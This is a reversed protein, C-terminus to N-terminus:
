FYGYTRELKKSFSSGQADITVRFREVCWDMSFNANATARRVELEMLDLTRLNRTTYDMGLLMGVLYQCYSMGENSFHSYREVNLVAQISMGFNTKRFPIRGGEMICNVDSLTELYAAACVISEAIPDIFEPAYSCIELGESIELAEEMLAGSSLAFNLNDAARCNYIRRIIGKLNEYDSSAGEVIYELENRFIHEKKPSSFCGMKDLLYTLFEEETGEGRSNMPIINVIGKASSLSNLDIEASSVKDTGIGASYIIDSNRLSYVGESPNSLEITRQEGTEPDEIVPLPMQAIAEMLGDWIEFPDEEVNPFGGESLVEFVESKQETLGSRHRVYESAQEMMSEGNKATATQFEEIRLEGFHISGWPSYPNAYESQTNRDLYQKIHNKLNEVSPPLSLYSTDIYFLDYEENLALSYEGLVSNLCIDTLAEIRLIEANRICLAALIMILLIFTSLSLACFITVSAKVKKIM